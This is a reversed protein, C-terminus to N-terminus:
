GAPSSFSFESMAIKLQGPFLETVVRLFSEHGPSLTLSPPFTLTLTFLLPFVYKEWNLFVTKKKFALARCFCQLIAVCCVEASM